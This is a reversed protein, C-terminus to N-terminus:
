QQPANGRLTLTHVGGPLNVEVRETTIRVGAAAHEAQEARVDTIDALRRGNHEISQPHDLRIGSRPLAVTTPMDAPAHLRLTYADPCDDIAVAIRGEVTSVAAQVHPLGVPAPEVRLAAYGPAAPAIGAVHRSLVLLPTGGWAHNSERGFKEPLTTYDSAIIDAYRRKIRALALDARHIRCLAELVYKEMYISAADDTALFPVLQAIKDEDALDAYVALANGRVDAGATFNPSRYRGLNADWFHEDFRAAIARRRRQFEAVDTTKELAAAFREGAQLGIAYWVTDLLPGDINKGWDRWDRVGPDWGAGIDQRHHPRSTDDVSWVELLYRRLAPYLEAFIARDGTHEWHARMGVGIFALTQAPFERYTGEFRGTPVAGWLIGEDTGWGVFERMAKRTLLDSRRDLAYHTLEVTSALDGPWQSRERDPCDMYSDRMNVYVSRAAKQWLKNLAPDSCQFAGAFDTAYGSERYALRHVRIGAPITYQVWHGNGWTLVEFAQRGPTTWYKTTKKDREIQIAIEAGAEPADIEFFPTVHINAPLTLTIPKGDSVFPTPHDAANEYARLGSDTWFPIEREITKGWPACPPTGKEM